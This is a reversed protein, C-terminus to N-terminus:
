AVRYTDPMGLHAMRNLAACKVKAEAEQQPLKKAQLHPGFSTKFRYIATEALSRKHYGSERKWKKRGIKRIRRLNEDRALPVAKYNGHQWIRADRRPPIFVRGIGERACAEYVKRKDYSGDASLQEVRQTMQDFLEPVAGADDLEPGSLVVAQIEQSDADVSLHLKRWTRRKAYGHQRVKWEGEGFVKLGTSDLVAHLPGRSDKPLSVKLKRSRKCITTYDPVDLELGMLGFVSKVFGETARLTLLFYSRVMLM